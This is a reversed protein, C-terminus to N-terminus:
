ILITKWQTDIMKMLAVITDYWTLIMELYTANMQQYTVIMDQCTSIIEQWIFIMAQCTLIMRKWTVIQQVFIIELQIVIVDQLFCRRSCTSEYHHQFHKLEMSPSFYFNHAPLPFNKGILNYCKSITDGFIGFFKMYKEFKTPVKIKFDLFQAYYM